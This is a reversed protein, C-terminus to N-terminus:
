APRGQAFDFPQPSAQAPWDRYPYTFRGASAFQLLPYCYDSFAAPVLGTEQVVRTNDFVTDWVLYPMFVQMLASGRRIASTRKERRADGSAEGLRRLRSPPAALRDIGWWFTRELSPVFRPPKSQQAAALADALERYTQSRAGASLHYRMHETTPRLHLEAIAKAVFDVPVIDVRDTPRFPLVPMRALFAFARVMDFQTTEPRRSDGLIISPRFIAIPMDALLDGVMQECHRKTRAYPDYDRRTWDLAADETVVEHSRHGAVAVTSVYSMRTVAHDAHAARALKIVEFTGRVNTDFCVSLSRRNLSAACHVISDTARALERYERDSLGFQAATLDGLVITVRSRLWSEFRPFDLLLQLSRWLRREADHHDSARVLLLLRDTGRELLEATVHAGVYGTAGTLFTSM